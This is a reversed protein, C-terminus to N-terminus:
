AGFVVLKLMERLTEGATGDTMDLVAAALEAPTETGYIEATGAGDASEATEAAYINVIDGAHVFIPAYPLVLADATDSGGSNTSTSIDKTESAARDIRATIGWTLSHGAFTGTGTARIYFWVERDADATYSGVLQASGAGTYNFSATSLRKM